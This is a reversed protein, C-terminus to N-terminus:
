ILEKGIIIKLNNKDSRTYQSELPDGFSPDDDKLKYYDRSIRQRVQLKVHNYMFDMFKNQKFDRGLKEQVITFWECAGDKMQSQDSVQNNQTYMERDAEDKTDSEGDCRVQIRYEYVVTTFPNNDPRIGSMQIADIYRKRDVLGIWENSWRDVITDLNIITRGDPENGGRGNLSFSSVHSWDDDMIIDNRIKMQFARLRNWNSRQQLM